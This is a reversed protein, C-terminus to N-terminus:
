STKKHTHRFFSKYVGQVFSQVKDQDDTHILIFRLYRDISIESEVMIEMMSIDKSARMQRQLQHITFSAPTKKGYDIWDRNIHISPFYDVLLSPDFYMKCQGRLPPYFSSFTDQTPVVSLYVAKENCPVGSGVTKTLYRPKIYGSKLMMGLNHLSTGHELLRISPFFANTPEIMQKTFKKM